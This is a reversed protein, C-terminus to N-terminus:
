NIEHNALTATYRNGKTVSFLRVGESSWVLALQAKM